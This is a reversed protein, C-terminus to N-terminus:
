NQPFKHHWEGDDERKGNRAAIGEHVEDASMSRQAYAALQGGLSPQGIALPERGVADPANLGVFVSAGCPGAERGVSQCGLGSRELWAGM